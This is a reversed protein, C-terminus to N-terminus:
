RGASCAVRVPLAGTACLGGINSSTLVVGGPSVQGATWPLGTSAHHCCIGNGGGPLAAKVVHESTQDVPDDPRPTRLGGMTLSCSTLALALLALLLKM